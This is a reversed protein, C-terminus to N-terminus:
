RGATPAQLTPVVTIFLGDRDSYRGEPRKWPLFNRVMEDLDQFTGPPDSPGWISSVRPFWPDLIYTGSIHADRFLKPDGDARFGSMVWTHAGHWTLLIAPSGTDEIAVAADRLASLRSEFARVEYGPAGYAELALAMAGPGWEGNLSDSKAEWEHVRGALERQADDTAAILGFHALVMQVGAAACWDKRLESAFIADHDPVVDIDVPARVPAPTPIPTTAPSAPAESSGVGVVSGSSATPYAIPPDTVRVTARTARDPVPGIVFREIRGLLADWRDGAGFADTAIALTGATAVVVSLVVAGVAFRRRRRHARDPRTM